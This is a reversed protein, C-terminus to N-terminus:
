LGLKKKIMELDKKMKENESKLNQNQDKLSALERKIKSIDETNARTQKESSKCMGHLDQVANVTAWHIPDVNLELYGDARTTM